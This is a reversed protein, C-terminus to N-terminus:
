GGVIRATGFPSASVSEVMKRARAIADLTALQICDPAWLCANSSALGGIAITRVKGRSGAIKSNTSVPIRTGNQVRSSECGAAVASKM